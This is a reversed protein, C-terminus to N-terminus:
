NSSEDELLLKNSILIHNIEELYNNIIFTAISKFNNDCIDKYKNLELLLLYQKRTKKHFLYSNCLKIGLQYDEYENLINYQKNSFIEYLEHPIHVINHKKTSQYCKPLLSGSFIGHIFNNLLIEECLISLLIDSRTINFTNLQNNVQDLQHIIKLLINTLPLSYLEFCDRYHTSIIPSEIIYCMNEINTDM